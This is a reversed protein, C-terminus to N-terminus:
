RPRAARREPEYSFGTAVLARGLPRPARVQLAREGLFAGEGRVACFTEGHIPSHVVGLALRRGRGRAGREGGLGPLRLPLQDHRRAPRGGLAARQRGRGRARRPWLGDQPREAELLERITREAERDADSVLDTASSKSSVGEAPRGYYPLLVEGAARAAREALELDANM